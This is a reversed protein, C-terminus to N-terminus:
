PLVNEFQVVAWASGKLEFEPHYSGIYELCYRLAADCPGRAGTVVVHQALRAVAKQSAADTPSLVIAGFVENRIQAHKHVSSTLADLRHAPPLDQERSNKARMASFLGGYNTTSSASTPSSVANPALFFLPHPAEQVVESSETDVGVLPRSCDLVACCPRFTEHCFLCSCLFSPSFSPMNCYYARVHRSPGYVPYGLALTNKLLNYTIM